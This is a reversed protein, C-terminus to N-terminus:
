LSTQIRSTSPTRRIIPERGVPSRSPSTGLFATFASIRSMTSDIGSRVSVLWRDATRGRVLMCAYRHVADRDHGIFLRRRLDARPRVSLSRQQSSGSHPRPELYRTLGSALTQSARRTDNRHARRYSLPYLTPRRLRLDCTRIRDPAGNGGSSPRPGNRAGSRGAHAEGLRDHRRGHRHPRLDRPPPGGEGRPRGCGGLDRIPRPAWEVARTAPIGPRASQELAYIEGRLQKKRELYIDDDLKGEANEAALAKIQRELRAKDLSVPREKSALASVVQSFTAPDMSMQAVQALIPVDWTEDGLRARHGWEHCPQPHLKRYRGDAFAGDSRLRRGCVCELLGRLLDVRGSRKAGGGRTKGRRVDEVRAWVEDSVPPDSRWAAPRPSAGKRTVWGNYIPNMLMCRLRSANLGTEEALETASVTGLAYREFVAVATGITGPDIELLYDREPSRRFGLPAHGGPDTHQLFKAGYGDSIRDSLRRSYREASTSESVLEEWDNRDSSLIRRDCMVLAVGAPHLDDELHQLTWRLNRQWRDSYGALLLDFSGSRADALMLAMTGSRHVTTGSHAAEYVLGTDVLGHREIFRDQQERQSAPGYRDFQGKTSERIWRAVRLGRVDDLSAPLPKV